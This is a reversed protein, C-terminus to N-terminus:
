QTSRSISITRKPHETSCESMRRGSFRWEAKRLVDCRVIVRKRCDHHVTCVTGQRSLYNNLHRKRLKNYTIASLPFKGLPYCEFIVLYGRCFSSPILCQKPGGQLQIMLEPACCIKDLMEPRPANRPRERALGTCGGASECRERGKTDFDSLADM